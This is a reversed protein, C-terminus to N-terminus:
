PEYLTYSEKSAAACTPQPVTDRDPDAPNDLCASLSYRLTDSVDLIYIYPASAGGVSDCPTKRMYINGTCGATESWCQKCLSSEFAGTTPYVQPNHDLKYLELAKQIEALNAKRQTDKARERVGIFNPFIAVIVLSLIGMVVLMELLTFGFSHRNLRVRTFVM